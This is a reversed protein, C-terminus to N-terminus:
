TTSANYRTPLHRERDRCRWSGGRRDKKGKDRRLTRKFMARLSGPEVEPANVIRVASLNGEENAAAVFIREFMTLHGKCLFAKVRLSEGDRMKGASM